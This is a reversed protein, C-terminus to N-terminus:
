REDLLFGLEALVERARDLLEPTAAELTHLHVGGTLESLLHAGERRTAESWARVDAPAHLHLEGRLEGYTPHEVVVDAVGVGLDIIALLEIEAEFPQHRVAVLASHPLPSVTSAVLYGRVTAVIPEGAARLIAVDHVIAQRSVGFREALLDGSIPGDSTVLAALLRSRRDSSSAGAPRISRDPVRGLRLDGASGLTM